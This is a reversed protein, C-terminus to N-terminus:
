NLVNQSNLVSILNERVWKVFVNQVSQYYKPLPLLQHKPNPGWLTLTNYLLNGTTLYKEPLKACLVAATRTRTLELKPHPHFWTRTTLFNLSSEVLTRLIRFLLQEILSSKLFNNVLLKEFNGKGNGQTDVSLFWLYWNSSLHQKSFIWQVCIKQSLTVINWEVKISKNSQKVKKSCCCCIIKRSEDHSRASDVRGFKSLASM